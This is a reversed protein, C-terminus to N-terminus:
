DENGKELVKQRVKKLFAKVDEKRGYILLYGDDQTKTSLESQALLITLEEDITVESTKLRVWHAGKPVGSVFTATGASGTTEEQYAAIIKRQWLDAFEKSISTEAITLLNMEVIQLLPSSEMVQDLESPSSRYINILNRASKLDDFLHQPVTLGKDLLVAMLEDLKKCANEYNIM